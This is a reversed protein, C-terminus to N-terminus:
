HSIGHGPRVSDHELVAKRHIYAEVGETGSEWGHGSALMGGFPTEARSIVTTNVGVMGARLEGSVRHATELSNTFVFAGLGYSTSNARRVADDMDRYPAVPLVPGFVEERFIRSDDTVNALVTPAYFYGPGDILHGGHRVDAGKSVADDVLAAVFPVRRTNALPGMTSAAEGASGVVINRAFATVADLFEEYVNEHVYFRSPANCVQGANRFKSTACRFAVEAIDVGPEIIVPANGGLEMTTVIDNDVALHSLTRGVPISGTLSVKRIIGHTLLHESVHAPVGLVLNAVGAPLGAKEFARFLAVAGAPTEESAKVVITCGAALAAALKRAVTLIPFNWPTFAAVPGVPEATAMLRAGSASPIIRGYTRRGEEALWEMVTIATTVEARAEPVPKGQEASILAATEDIEDHLHASATRIIDSRTLPDTDRWAGTERAVAALAQDLQEDGVHQFTALPEGSAPDLVTERTPATGNVWHGDIHQQIRHATAM